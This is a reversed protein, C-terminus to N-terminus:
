FLSATIYNVTWPPLRHQYYINDGGNVNIIYYEETAYVLVKIDVGTGVPNLHIEDKGWQNNIFSNLILSSTGRQIYSVTGNCPM